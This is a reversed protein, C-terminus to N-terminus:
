EGTSVVRVLGRNGGDTVANLETVDDFASVVDSEIEQPRARRV